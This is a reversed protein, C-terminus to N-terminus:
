YDFNVTALSGDATKYSCVVVNNDRFSYDFSMSYNMEPKESTVVVEEVLNKTPKGLLGAYFLHEMGLCGLQKSMNVPLIGNKNELHSYKLTYIVPINDPETVIIKSINGNNYEIQASTNFVQSQGFNNNSISLDWATMRDDIYAFQYVDNDVKIREILESKNLMVEIGLNDSNSISVWDPGYTLNSTYKYYEDNASTYCSIGTASVLRNDSYTFTWDYSDTIAGKNEIKMVNSAGDAPLEPQMSPIPAEDDGCAVLASLACACFLTKIAINYFRKNNM